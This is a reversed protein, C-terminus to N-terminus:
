EDSFIIVFMYIIDMLLIVDEVFLRSIQNFKTQICNSRLASCATQTRKLHIKTSVSVPLCHNKTTTPKQLIEFPMSVERSFVSRM